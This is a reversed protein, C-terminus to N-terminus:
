CCKSVLLLIIFSPVQFAVVKDESFRKDAKVLDVARNSFDCAYVMLDKGEELLPYFFNGAGCGVEFLVKRGAGDLVKFERTTWHRDKFFRNENRKYFIDWHKKAEKELKMAQFESVLRSDQRSLTAEEEASLEKAQEVSNEEFADEEM